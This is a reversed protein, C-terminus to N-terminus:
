MWTCQHAETLRRAAPRDSLSAQRVGGSVLPFRTQACITHVFNSDLFPAKLSADSVTRKYLSPTPQASEAYGGSELCCLNEASCFDNM